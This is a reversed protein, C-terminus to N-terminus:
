NDRKLPYGEKDCKDVKYIMCRIAAELNTFIQSYVTQNHNTMTVIYVTQSMKQILSFIPLLHFFIENKIFNSQFLQRFKM